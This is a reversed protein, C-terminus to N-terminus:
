IGLFTSFVDGVKKYCAWAHRNHIRINAFIILSKTTFPHAFSKTKTLLTLYYEIPKGSYIDTLQSILTVM